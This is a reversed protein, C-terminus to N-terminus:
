RTSKRAFLSGLQRDLSWATNLDPAAICYMVGHSGDFANTFLVGTRTAPDYAHGAATLRELADTFSDVSWGEPWVRELIIRDTGYGDGIIKKGLVGYIHTSGTIRGNYETFLVERRPTVIADTACMGRYGMAHLSECLERGGDVLARMVEPELGVCPMVQGVAYPASLLEGDGTLEVGEDSIRYETFYASSDRHYQEVVPRSRGGGTLWEWREDLYARVAARDPVTVARRAGIPRIGDTTSLIENGHGGSLFDHKVMVPEGGALLEVIVTEAVEKSTAVAGAPVPVGAGGALTRFLSKSNTLPGGGQDVFGHGALASPAGLARALRAVTADPWLSFIETVPRDGVASRLEALFAPDALRGPTLMSDEGGPPVVVTLSARDVGTLATVYALFDEDVAAPLVLVDGDAAFWALRQVWWGTWGRDTRVDESFDNGVLVRTM